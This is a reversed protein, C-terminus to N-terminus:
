ARADASSYSGVVSVHADVPLMPVARNPWVDVSKVLPGSRPLTSTVPPWSPLLLARALASNYSGVVPVQAGVALM